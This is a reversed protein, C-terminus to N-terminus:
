DEQRRPLEWRVLWGGPQDPDDAPVPGADLTADVGAARERMGVLGLGSGEGAGAGSGPGNRATFVVRDDAFVLHLRLAAGPAHRRANTVAEQATRVLAHVARSPLPYPTGTVSWTEDPGTTLRGIAEVPDVTDGRLTQVAVRAEALGDVVLRQATRVAVRGPEPRGSDFLAEALSLQMNVGSLSHALVDHIDRAIAAREALARSEAASEAARKTQVVVEHAAELTLLRTRRTMGPILAAFVIIPTWWPTSDTRGWILAVVVGTGVSATVIAIATRAPFRVGSHVGVMYAFAGGWGQGTLGLLAGASIGAVTAIVRRARPDIIRDPVRVTLMLVVCVLCLVLRVAGERSFGIPNATLLTMVGFLVVLFPQLAQVLRDFPTQVPVGSDYAKQTWPLEM